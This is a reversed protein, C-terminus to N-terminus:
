IAMIQIARIGVYTYTNNCWKKRKMITIWITVASLIKWKETGRVMLEGGTGDNEGQAMMKGWVIPISVAYFKLFHGATPNWPKILVNKTKTPYISIWVEYKDSKKCGCM